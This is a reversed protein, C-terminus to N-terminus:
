ACSLRFRQHDCIHVVVPLRVDHLGFTRSIASLGSRLAYYIIGGLPALLLVLVYLLSVALMVGRVLRGRRADQNYARESVALDKTPPMEGHDMMQSSM